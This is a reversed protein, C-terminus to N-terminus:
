ARNMCTKMCLQFLSWQARAARPLRSSQKAIVTAARACCAAPCATIPARDRAGFVNKKARSFISAKKKTTQYVFQRSLQIATNPDVPHFV